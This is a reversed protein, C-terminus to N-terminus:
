TMTRLLGNSSKFPKRWLWEKELWWYHKINIGAQRSDTAHWEQGLVASSNNSEEVLMNSSLQAMLRASREGKHKLAWCFPLGSSEHKICGDAHENPYERFHHFSSCFSGVLHYPFFFFSAFVFAVDLIVFGSTIIHISLMSTYTNTRKPISSKAIMTHKTVSPTPYRLSTKCFYKWYTPARFHVRKCKAIPVYLRVSQSTPKSSCHM